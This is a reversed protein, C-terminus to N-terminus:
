FEEKIKFKSFYFCGMFALWTFYNIGMLLYDFLVFLCFLVILYKDWKRTFFGVVFFSEALFGFLYLCYSLRQHAILYNLFSDYWSHTHIALYSSHQRFLIASMEEANFVGGARIKWLASSFIFLIFLSRCLHLLYYFGTPTRAYFILPLFMWAIFNEISVFSMTSFFSLYVVNFVATAIAFFSVLSKKKICTYLLLVPLLLYIIDLSIRLGQSQLLQQQLGTLMMMNHTIDLRNYFFVPKTLSFLLGDYVFWAYCTLFCALYFAAFQKIHKETLLL